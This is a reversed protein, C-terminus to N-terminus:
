YVSCAESTLAYRRSLQRGLMLVHLSVRPVGLPKCDCPHRVFLSKLPKPFVGFPMLLARTAVPVGVAAVAFTVVCLGRTRVGAAGIGVIATSACALSLQAIDHGLHGTDRLGSFMVNNVGAISPGQQGFVGYGM